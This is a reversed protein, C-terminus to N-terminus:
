KSKIVPHARDHGGGLFKSFIVTDGIAPKTGYVSDLHFFVQEDNLDIFGWSNYLINNVSGVYRANKSYCLQGCMLVLQDATPRKHPDRNLCHGIINTIEAALVRFQPNENIFIPYPDLRAELIKPIARFGSGFPYNGTLIRYMMAGIAWIDAPKSVEKPRDIVEPAMYPLAGIATQSNSLSEENRAAEAIEEEAMKSIGFDTIKVEAANIGGVVMINTPKLDRHIVGVHHSAALAKSLNHFIRASLYPDVHSYKSLLAADLDLGDIFEETLYECGDEVFYDFTKAVNPHNVKAALIASRKFRKQASNNKPTKLAIERNLIEDYALFVNQMGGEGIKRLVNYRGNLKDDSM